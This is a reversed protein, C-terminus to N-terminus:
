LGSRSRWRVHITPSFCCRCPSTSSISRLTLGGVQWAPSIHMTVWNQCPARHMHELRDTLRCHMLSHLTGLGELIIIATVVTTFNPEVQTHRCSHLPYSITSKADKAAPASLPVKVRHQRVLNTLELLVDGIRLAKLSRLAIILGHIRSARALSCDESRGWRWTLHARDAWGWAKFSESWAVSSGM